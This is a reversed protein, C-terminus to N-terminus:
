EKEVEKPSWLPVTDYSESPINRNFIFEKAEEKSKFPGTVAFLQKGEWILVIYKQKM